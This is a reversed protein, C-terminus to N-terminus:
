DLLHAMCRTEHRWSVWMLISTFIRIASRKCSQSLRASASTESLVQLRQAAQSVAIGLTGSGQHAAGPRQIDALPEGSLATPVDGAVPGIRAVTPVDAGRARHDGPESRGLCGS